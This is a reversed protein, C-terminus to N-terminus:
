SEAGFPHWELGFGELRQLRTAVQYINLVILAVHSRTGGITLPYMAIARAGSIRHQSLM